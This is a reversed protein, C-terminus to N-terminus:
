QGVQRVHIYIYRPRSRSPRELLCKTMKSQGTPYPFDQSFYIVSGHTCGCWWRDVVLQGTWARWPWARMQGQEHWIVPMDMPWIPAKGMWKTLHIPRAPHIPMPLPSIGHSMFLCPVAPVSAHAPGHCEQQLVHHVSCRPRNM